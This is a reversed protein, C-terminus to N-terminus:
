LKQKLFNLAEELILLFFGVYITIIFELTPVESIFFYNVAMFVIILYIIVIRFARM